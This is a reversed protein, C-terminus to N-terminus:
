PTVVVTGHMFPHISCIYDFTGAAPFTFSFIGGSGLAQSRFSGGGAVVTHPDEDKNTWTVTSGAKVTLTPPAFAFGDINVADPGAPAAPANGESPSPAMSMAPMATGSPSGMGTMGPTGSVDTSFTPNPQAVPENAAVCAALLGSGVAATSLAVLVRQSRRSM